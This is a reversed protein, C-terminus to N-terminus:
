RLAQDSAVVARLRDEAIRAKWEDLRPTASPLPVGVAATRVALVKADDYAPEPTMAIHGLWAKSVRYASRSEWRMGGPMPLFGASADLCGDDALELTEDGLPTKAIKVRAVLGEDRDPHLATARGVTRELNHDRNVRIRNARREIGAFAGREILETVTRGEYGVLAETDYPMVILEITREPFDVGILEAQREWLIGAPRTEQDTV